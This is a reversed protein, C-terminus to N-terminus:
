EQLDGQLEWNNWLQAFEEALLRHGHDSLHLFDQWIDGPANGGEISQELNNQVLREIAEAEDFFLVRCDPHKRQFRDCMAAQMDVGCRVWLRVVANALTHLCLPQWQSLLHQMLPLCPTVPLGAVVFICIGHLANLEEMLNDINNIMLDPTFSASVGNRLTMCIFPRSLFNVLDGAPRWKCCLYCPVTLLRILCWFVTQIFALLFAYVPGWVGGGCLAHQLDNGGTHIIALTAEPFPREDSSQACIAAQAVLDQSTSGGMAYAYVAPFDGAAWWQPWTEPGDAWSDGFILALRDRQGKCTRRGM